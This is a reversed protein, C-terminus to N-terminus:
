IEIELISKWHWVSLFLFFICSFIYVVLPYEKYQM